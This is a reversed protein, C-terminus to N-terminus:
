ANGPQPAADPRGLRGPLCLATVLAPLLLLLLWSLVPVLGYREALLGVPGVLLGGISWGLGMIIGSTIGPNEPFLSQALVVTVPNFSGMAFGAAFMAPWIVAGRARLALWFLPGILCLGAFIVTKRGWRDSLWGGAVTGVAGAATMTMLAVGLLMVPLGIEALHVALFSQYATGIASRLAVILWVAVLAGLRRRDLRDFGLASGGKPPRRREGARDWGLRLLLACLAVTPVASLWSARLGFRDVIWLIFVPGVAYGVTGCSIFVAMGLGAGRGAAAAVASTAHPHFAATSLGGVLLLPVLWGYSPALGFLGVALATIVPWLLVSPRRLGRDFFWGFLPQFLSAATTQVAALLGAAGLGFGFRGMLLPTVAALYAPYQDNLGHLLGFLM